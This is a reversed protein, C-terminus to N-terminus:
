IPTLIRQTETTYYTGCFGDSFTIISTILEIRYAINDITEYGYDQRDEEVMIVLGPIPCNPDPEEIEDYDPYPVDTCTNASNFSVEVSEVYLDYEASELVCNDALPHKIYGSFDYTEGCCISLTVSPYTIIPKVSRNRLPRETVTTSVEKPKEKNASFMGYMFSTENRGFDFFLRSAALYGNRMRKGSIPVWGYEVTNNFDSSEFDKVHVLAWVDEEPFTDPKNQISQFDTTFLSVTEFQSTKEGKDDRPACSESYALYAGSFEPEAMDYSTSITSQTEFSSRSVTHEVGEMGKLKESQYSFRRLGSMVDKYKEATLDLTVFPASYSYAPFYSIHEIRFKGNEDIFWYAGFLKKLESLLDKLKITGKTAPNTRGPRKAESIHMMLTDKLQNYKNTVPNIEACFFESMQAATVQGVKEYSTGKLTQQVTYLIANSLYFGSDYRNSGTPNYDDSRQTTQKFPRPFLTPNTFSVQNPYDLINIELHWNSYIGSYRDQVNIKDIKATQNDIDWAIDHLNFYGSWFLRPTGSGCSRYIFLTLQQCCQIAFNKAGELFKYDEGAIELGGGIKERFFAEGEERAVTIKGISKPEIMKSRSLYNLQYTYAM